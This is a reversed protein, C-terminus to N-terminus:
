EIIIQRILHRHGSRLVLIYNGKALGTVDIQDRIFDVSEYERILIKRGSHNFIDLYYQSFEEDQYEIFLKDRAPVPYVKLEGPLELNAISNGLELYVSDSGQCGLDNYGMDDMFIVIMNPPTQATSPSIFCAMGFLTLMVVVYRRM